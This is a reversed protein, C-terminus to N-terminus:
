RNITYLNKDVGILKKNKLLMQHYLDNVTTVSTAFKITELSVYQKIKKQQVM